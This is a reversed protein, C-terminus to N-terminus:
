QRRGALATVYVALAERRQESAHFAGADPHEVTTVVWVPVGALPVADDGLAESALQRHEVRLGDAEAVVAYEYTLQYGDAYYRTRYRGLYEAVEDPREAPFAAASMEAAQCSLAV